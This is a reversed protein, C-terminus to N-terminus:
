RSYKLWLAIRKEDVSRTLGSAFLGLGITLVVILLAPILVSYPNSNFFQLSQAAIAGLEPFYPNTQFDIYAIVAFTGIMAGVTLPLQALAIQFSGPLVKYIITKYDRNGIAKSSMVTPSEKLKLAEIRVYKAFIPFFAISLGFFKYLLSSNFGIILIMFILYPISFVIDTLRMLIEDIIGGYFGAIIGVIIGILLSLIAAPIIFLTDMTAGKIIATLVDIGLYTTGLLHSSSPGIGSITPNIDSKLSFPSHFAILDYIALCIFFLMIITGALGEKDKLLLHIAANVKKNM